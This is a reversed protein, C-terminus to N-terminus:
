YMGVHTVGLSRKLREFATGFQHPLEVTQEFRDFGVTLEELHCGRGATFPVFDQPLFENRLEASIGPQHHGDDPSRINALAHDKIM